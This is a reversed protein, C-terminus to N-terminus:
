QKPINGNWPGIGVMGKFFGPADEVRNDKLTVDESASIFIGYFPEKLAPIFEEPVPATIVGKRTLDLYKLKEPTAQFPKVILNDMVTVNKSNGIFIPLGQTNKIINGRIEIDHYLTHPALHLFAQEYNPPLGPALSIAGWYAWIVGNRFPHGFVKEGCNEFTNSLIRVNNPFGGELFFCTDTGLALGGFDLDKFRCNKVISDPSKLLLGRNCGTHMFLNEIHAGRACYEQSCAMDLAELQVPEEFSVINFEPEIVDRIPADFQENSSKQVAAYLKLGETKEFPEWAAVKSTGMPKMDPAQNLILETGVDYDRGAISALVYRNDSLKKLVVNFFGHLNMGDDHTRAIECDILTPGRHQNYSHFGDSVGVGIRESGSRPVIKMRVYTNGGPSRVGREWVCITGSSFVTMDEFRMNGCNEVVVGGAGTLIGMSLRDGKIPDVGAASRSWALKGPPCPEEYLPVLDSVYCEAHGAQNMWWTRGIIRTQRLSEEPYFGKELDIIIKDVGPSRGSPIIESVIGQVFPSRIMDATLGQVICDKSDAFIVASGSSLNKWFTVGTADIKMNRAGKVTLIAQPSPLWDTYDGPPIRFFNSGSAIAADLNEQLNRAADSAAKREAATWNLVSQLHASPDVPTANIAFAAGATTLGSLACAMGVIPGYFLKTIKM